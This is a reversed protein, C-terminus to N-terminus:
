LPEFQCSLGGYKFNKGSAYCKVRREKERTVMEWRRYPQNEEKKLQKAQGETMGQKCSAM